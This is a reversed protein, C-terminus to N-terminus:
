RKQIVFPKVETSNSQFTGQSRRSLDSMSAPKTSLNRLDGNPRLALQILGNSQALMLLSCDGPSLALTVTNAVEHMSNQKQSTGVALVKVAQFISSSLSYGDKHSPSYHIDVSDGPQLMGSLGSVADVGLTFARMDEPISHSLKDGSSSIKNFLLPEKYNFPVLTMLGLIEQPNTVAGRPVFAKPVARLAIWDETINTLAPIYKRAVVIEVSEGM